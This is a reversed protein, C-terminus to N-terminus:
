LVSGTRLHMTAEYKFVGRLGVHSVVGSWVKLLIGYRITMIDHLLSFCITVNMWLCLDWLGCKSLIPFILWLVYVGNPFILKYYSM